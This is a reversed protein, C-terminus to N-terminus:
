FGMEVEFVLDQDFEPAFVVLGTATSSEPRTSVIKAGAPPVLWFNFVKDEIGPQKQLYLLYDGTEKKIKEELQYSIEVIKKSQIPVEVLFGFATKDAIKSEDVKEKELEEGDIVVKELISGAPTLIRLYNKYRGAPFIESQSQNHYDIRLIERVEGEQGFNVQHTLNRKVFYNAKNVGFNSEVIMLYDTLCQGKEIECEVRRIGGDWGLDALIRAAEQNNLYVLLDKSKLSQYIAKSIVLWQSEETQEVKEFLANAVAGLFDKKQTSGPFFNVEAHYEAREFLNDANIEEQYDILSVPGVVRLIRQALFLDIGVVGDVMRGTEKELFWSARLASVPFDPSFNSDRLFWGAEGLYRKIPEPPEVHGKLQGDASYVDSVQFDILRGGEFTAIALSGIFGGAPRLEMNNQFLVLYTRRGYAGTLDPLLRVGEKAQLLIERVTSLEELLQGDFRALLQRSEPKSKLQGELYSFQEYVSDLDGGIESALQTIDASEGQFIAGSVQGIKRSVEGLKEMGKGAQFGVILYAEIKNQFREQNLFTFFTGLSNLNTQARQFNGEAAKASSVTQNFDGAVAARYASHLNRVGFLASLVLTGPLYFIITLVLLVLSAFLIKQGLFKPRRKFVAIKKKVKKKKKVLKKTRVPKEARKQFYTLTQKLGENLGVKPQWNLNDKPALTKELEFVAVEEKAIFEIKLEQGFLGQLRHAFSLITEEKPSVLNFIKGTTGPGFMAKALGYVLDGIFTPRIEQSGDGPIEIPGGRIAQKIMRALIGGTKLDMRPGYVWNLRVIRADIKHKKAYETTIAEASRKAESLSALEGAEGKGFYDVLKQTAITAQFVRLDSGLLFKAGTKKALRLLNITGSVNALLTELSLDTGAVYAELGALHFIYDPEGVGINFPQNLDQKIFLFDPNESCGSLNRKSGTQLNDLCVVRCNQQLLLECLFSGIFGAGGAVLVLPKDQNNKSKHFFKEAM